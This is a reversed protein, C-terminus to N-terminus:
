RTEEIVYLYKIYRDNNYLKVFAKKYGQSKQIKIVKGVKIGSFFINDLGSTSVEDGIKIDIYEPIYDVLINDEDKLGKTIGPAKNKGVVVTYSCKTDHNLLALARGDKNILIGAINNKSILGYVKSSNFDKYDVWLKYPDEFNALSIVKVAKLKPNFNKFKHILLINNLEDSASLVLIKFEELQRINQQLKKYQEKEFYIKDIAYSFGNINDSISNVTSLYFSKIGDTVILLPNQRGDRKFYSIALVVIISIFFIYKKTM